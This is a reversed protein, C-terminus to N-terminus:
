KFKLIVLTYDDELKVGNLFEYLDGIIGEKIKSCSKHAHRALSAKLGEQGFEEKKENVAETIGDTHLILVDDPEFELANNQVYKNYDSNRVIGLGMGATELYCTSKNKASYILTPCHGARVFDISNSNTNIYYYSASIFSSKELCKSLAKNTLKILEVPDLDLQALSHFIGKMQAMNFAASTGKGSVDGIILGYTGNEYSVMDYYDGGVEDAAKSYAEITFKSNSELKEPLLRKQVSQAIKLQEKYRENQLADSILRANELSLSAQNVFTIIIDVMERNFADSVEQLLVLAGIQESKILLPIAFVSKYDGKSLSTYVKQHSINGSYELDIVKKLPSPKIVQKIEEIDKTTVTRSIFTEGDVPHTLEIWGADAFAASMSSDLLIEYTEKEDHGSPTSQSLKQFDVAEKLKKEFESSTPLNFLTVLVAIGAYLFIFVLTAVIFVRDMLDIFLVETSSFNIMNLLFHYLYIGSLLIFLISKWKQKLNLYAIWKLNFALVFSFGGLFVVAMNFIDTNFKYGIFDFALSFLLASEFFSWLQILSKTKQYLILRKWVVFTSVLYVVVLGIYVHYLFNITIPNKSFASNEFIVFFFRIGLSIITTILGTVFVKWLLDTFNVSEAKTITYRYYLYTSIIFLTLFIQPVLSTYAERIEYKELLIFYLDFFSFCLWFLLGLM